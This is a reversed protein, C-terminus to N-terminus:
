PCHRSRIKQPAKPKEVRPIRFSLSLELGASVARVGQPIRSAAIGSYSQHQIFDDQIAQTNHLSYQFIGLM